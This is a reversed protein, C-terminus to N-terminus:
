NFIVFLGVLMGILVYSWLINNSWGVFSEIIGM